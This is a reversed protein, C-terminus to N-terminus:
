GVQGEGVGRLGQSLEAGNEMGPQPAGNPGASEAAGVVAAIGAQLVEEPNIGNSQMEGLANMIQTYQDSVLRQMPIPLDLAQVVETSVKGADFPSNPMGALQLIMQLRALLVEPNSDGSKGTVEVRYTQTRWDQNEELEPYAAKYDESLQDWHLKLYEIAILAIDEIAESLSDLYSAERKQDNAALVNITTAKTEQGPMKGTSIASIGLTQEILGELMQIMPLVLDARFSNPLVGVQTGEPFNKLEGPRLQSVSVTSNAGITYATPFATQMVGGMMANMLDSHQLCYDTVKAGLSGNCILRKEARIFRFVAYWMEAYPYEVDMLCLDVDRVVVVRRIGKETRTILDFLEVPEDDGEAYENFNSMVDWEGPLETHESKDGVSPLEVTKPMEYVKNKINQKISARSEYFRRGITTADKLYEVDVPYILFNKPDLWDAEFGVITGDQVKPILSVPGLNTNASMILAQGLIRKFGSRSLIEDVIREIQPAAVNNPNNPIVQVMPSPTTLAAVCDGILKDAKPTWVSYCYTLLGDVINKSVGGPDVNYLQQVSEWRPKITELGDNWVDIQLNLRAALPNPYM